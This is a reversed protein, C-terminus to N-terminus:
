QYRSYNLTQHTDSVKNMWVTRVLGTPINTVLCLDYQPNVNTRYVVKVPRDNETEVEIVQALAPDLQQLEPAVGYRDNYRAVEAHRSYHLWMPKTPLAKKVEEPIGKQSHYLTM